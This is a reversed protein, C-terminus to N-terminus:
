QLYVLFEVSDSFGSFGACNRARANWRYRGEDRIIGEPLEFSNTIPDYDFIYVVDTELNRIYFSYFLADSVPAVELVVPLKTAATLPTVPRPTQPPAQTFVRDIEAADDQNAIFEMTSTWSSYVGGRSAKAKWGYPINPCVVNDPVSYFPSTTNENLVNQRTQLNFVSFEYGDSGPVAEVRLRPTSNNIEGEPGIPTPIPLSEGGASRLLFIDNQGVWVGLVFFVGILLLFAGTLRGGLGKPQRSRTKGESRKPPLVIEYKDISKYVMDWLLKEEDSATQTRVQVLDSSDSHHNKAEKDIIDDVTLDDRGTMRKLVDIVMRATSLSLGTDGRVVQHGWSKSKRNEEELRKAFKTQSIGLDNLLDKLRTM